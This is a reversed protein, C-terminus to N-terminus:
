YVAKENCTEDEKEEEKSGSIIKQFQESNFKRMDRTLFEKRIDKQNKKQHLIIIAHDTIM